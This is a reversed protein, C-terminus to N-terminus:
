KVDELVIDDQKNNNDKEEVKNFFLSAIILGAAIINESILFLVLLAITIGKRDKDKNTAKLLMISLVLLAIHLGIIAFSFGAVIGRVIKVVDEIDDDTLEYKVGDEDFTIMYDDDSQQIYTYNSVEDKYLDLIFKETIFFTSFSLIVALILSLVASAIGIISGATLLGKKTKTM